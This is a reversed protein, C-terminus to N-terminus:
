RRQAQRLRIRETWIRDGEKAGFAHRLNRRRLKLFRQLKGHRFVALHRRCGPYELLQYIIGDAGAATANVKPWKPKEKTM